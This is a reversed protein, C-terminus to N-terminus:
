TILRYPLSVAYDDVDYDLESEVEVVGTTEAARARIREADSLLPVHGSLHAVGGEVKVEAGRSGIEDRIEAEIEADTRLFARLLDRRSLMGVLRGQWDVVPLRRMGRTYLLRAAEAVTADGALRTAPVTMLDRAVLATAKGAEHRHRRGELPYGTRMKLRGVRPLLDAESVLGIVHHDPDVVPVASVQNEALLTAIEKFPTEPGVAIVPASMVDSVRWTKM